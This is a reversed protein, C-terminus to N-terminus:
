VSPFLLILSLIIANSPCSSASVTEFHLKILIELGNSKFSSDKLYRGEGSVDVIGSKIKLSLKGSVDLFDKMEQANEVM